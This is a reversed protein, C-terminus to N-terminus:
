FTSSRFMGLRQEPLVTAEADIPEDTVGASVTDQLKPAEKTHTGRATTDDVPTASDMPLNTTPVNPPKAPLPKDPKPQLAPAQFILRLAEHLHKMM